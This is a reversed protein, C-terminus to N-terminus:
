AVEKKKLIQDRAKQIQITHEKAWQNHEKGQHSVTDPHFQKMKNRYAKLIDERTADPKIGLTEYAKKLSGSHLHFHKRHHLLPGPKEDGGKFFRFKKPRQLFFLILGFVLLTNLIFFLESM